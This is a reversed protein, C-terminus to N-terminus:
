QRYRFRSKNEILPILSNLLFDYIENEMSPTYFKTSSIQKWKRDFNNFCEFCIRTNWKGNFSYLIKYFFNTENEILTILSNLFIFFYFIFFLFIAHRMKWQFLRFNWLRVRNENEILTILSNLLFGWTENEM